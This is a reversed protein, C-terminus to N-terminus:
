AALSDILMARVVGVAADVPPLARMEAAVRQATSRYSPDGTIRVVADRLRAIAEDPGGDLAIGAGLAEVREANWPQDAFLPVVAMPVGAALGM